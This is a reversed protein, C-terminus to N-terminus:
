ILKIRIDRSCENMIGTVINYKKLEDDVVDELNDYYELAVQHPIWLRESAKEFVNIISERLNPSYRFLGLLLSTDPVFVCNKWIYQFEEESPRYKPLICNM